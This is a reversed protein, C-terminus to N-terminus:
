GVWYFQSWSLFLIAQIAIFTLFIPLKLWPYTTVFYALALTLPFLFSLYRISSHLHGYVVLPMLISALSYVILSLPLKKAWTSIILLLLAALVFFKDLPTIYGIFGRPNLLAQWPLSTHTQWAQRAILPALYDGVALQAIASHIVLGLLM